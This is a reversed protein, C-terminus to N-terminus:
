YQPNNVSNESLLDGGPKKANWRGKVMYSEEVVPEPLEKVDIDIFSLVDLTFMTKESRDLDDGKLIALVYSEDSTSNEFIFVDSCM